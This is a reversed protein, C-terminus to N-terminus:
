ENCSVVRLHAHRQLARPGLYSLYPDPDQRGQSEWVVEFAGGVVRGIRVPLSTHQTQGDIAIPGLPTEVELGDLAKRISDPDESGAAELADALMLVAAHASAHFSSARALAGTARPDAFHPGVSLLGEAAEGIASLEAETLNCSVVPCNEPAFARDRRGLEAYARLFAHSSQGILNNLIFSPRAAEIEQLLREIGTDGLPLYREGLVRGNVDGILDRAVRNLEWGWIYNSGLLFPDRGFRPIVFDLLPVIHQNPCAHAYIVHDNTEFGEYPCAYWLLGGHKELLPIVEKRSWSTTCGFIHKVGEDRLLEVCHPGYREIQGQPDRERARLLFSRRSDSNIAEIAALVGERSANSLLQYDGSRSFLIGIEISRKM